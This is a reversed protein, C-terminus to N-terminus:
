SRQDQIDGETKQLLKERLHTYFKNFDTALDEYYQDSDMHAHEQIWVPSPMKTFLETALKFIQEESLKHPMAAEKISQYHIMRNAVFGMIGLFIGFVTYIIWSTTM